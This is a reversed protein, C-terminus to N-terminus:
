GAEGEVSALLEEIPQDRQLEIGLAHAHGDLIYWVSETVLASRFLM